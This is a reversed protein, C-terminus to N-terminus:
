SQAPLSSRTKVPITGKIISRSEYPVAIPMLSGGIRPEQKTVYSAKNEPKPIVYPIMGVGTNLEKMKLSNIVKVLKERSSLQLSMRRGTNINVDSLVMRSASKDIKIAERPTILVKPDGNAGRIVKWEFDKMKISGSVRDNLTINLPFGRSSIQNFIKELQKTLLEGGDNNNFAQMYERGYAEGFLKNLMKSVENSKGPENLVKLLPSLRGDIEIFIKESVDVFSRRESDFVLIKSGKHSGHITARKRREELVKVIEPNHVYSHSKAGDVSTSERRLNDIHDTNMEIHISEIKRPFYDKKFSDVGYNANTMHLHRGDEQATRLHHDGLPVHSTSSYSKAVRVEDFKIPVAETITMVRKDKLM